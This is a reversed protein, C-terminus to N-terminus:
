LPEPTYGARRIAERIRAEDAPGAVEVRKSAADAAVRVGPIAARVAAEITGACNECAMDKVLLAHSSASPTGPDSAMEAEKPAGASLAGELLPLTL